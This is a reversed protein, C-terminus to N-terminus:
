AWVHPRSHRRQCREAGVVDDVVFLYERMDDVCDAAVGAALLAAPWENPSLEAVDALTAAPLDLKDTASAAAHDTPPVAHIMPINPKM